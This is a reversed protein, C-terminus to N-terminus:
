NLIWRHHVKNVFLFCKEEKVDYSELENGPALYQALKTAREMFASDHRFSATTFMLTFSAWSDPFTVYGM